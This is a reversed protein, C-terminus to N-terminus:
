MKGKGFHTRLNIDLGQAVLWKLVELEGSRVAEHIASWGNGDIKKITSPDKEQHRNNKLYVINNM